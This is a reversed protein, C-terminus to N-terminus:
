NGFLLLFLNFFLPADPHIAWCLVFIGGFLSLPSLVLAFPAWIAGAMGTLGGQLSNNAFFGGILFGILGLVAFGGMVVVGKYNSLFMAPERVTSPKAEHEHLLKTIETRKFRIARDLPTENSLDKANADAGASILLQTIKKHGMLAAKHLPTEGDVDKVNVNTGAAL